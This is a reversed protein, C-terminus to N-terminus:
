PGALYRAVFWRWNTGDWVNGTVVLRFGDSVACLAYSEGYGPPMTVFYGDADWTFDRMGFATYRLALGELDAGPAGRSRYGVSVYRGSPQRVLGYVAGGLPGLSMTNRGSFGFGPDLTGNSRLRFIGAAGIGGADYVTGTVTIAGDPQIVLERGLTSKQPFSVRSIGAVGFAPDLSGDALYRLVVADFRSDARRSRGAVVIRGDPQVRVSTGIDLGSGDPVVTHVIGGVGFAPDLEGIDTLRVLKIRKTGLPDADHHVGGVVLVKGDPQTTIDSIPYREGHDWITTEGHRALVGFADLILDGFTLDRSGDSHHRVVFVGAPFAEDGFFSLIRQSSDVALATYLRPDGPPGFPRLSLGARGDSGFGVDIAGEPTLKLLVTQHAFGGGSTYIFLVSGDATVAVGPEVGAYFHAPDAVAGITFGGVGFTPDPLPAAAALYGTCALVLAALQSAFFRRTM